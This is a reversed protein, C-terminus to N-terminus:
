VTGTNEDIEFYYLMLEAQIHIAACGLYNLNDMPMEAGTKFALIRKPKIPANPEVIAWLWLMGGENAFRIIEAGEHLDVTFDELIPIQYKWITKNPKEILAQKPGRQEEDWSFLEESIQRIAEIANVSEDKSVEDALIDAGQNIIEIQTPNRFMNLSFTNIEVGELDITLYEQKGRDVHSITYIKGFTLYKHARCKNSHRVDSNYYPDFVVLDGVEPRTKITLEGM